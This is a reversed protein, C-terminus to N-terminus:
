SQDKQYIFVSNIIDDRPHYETLLKVHAFDAAAVGPYLLTRAGYASRLLIRGSSRLSPLVNDIIAQKQTVTRGALAAVIVLDYTNNLQITAGDGLVHQCVLGLRNGLLSCIALASLSSDVHDVIVGRQAILELATLPLPGTGVMLVRSHQHLPLGNQEILAIERSVLERYNTRYPFAALTKVPQASAIIRRAWHLELETEAVSAILQMTRRTRVPVHTDPPSAAIETVLQTFLKNVRASPRVNPLSEIAHITTTLMYKSTGTRIIKQLFTAFFIIFAVTM